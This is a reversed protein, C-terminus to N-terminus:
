YRPTGADIECSWAEIGGAMSQAAAFGRARLFEAVRLSRVGHHCHVVIRADRHPELEALREPITPMPILLSGAIRAIAHEDPERCDLLLFPEGAARLAAVAHVDIEVREADTM